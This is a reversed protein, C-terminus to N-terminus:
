VCDAVNESLNSAFLFGSMRGDGLDWAHSGTIAASLLNSCLLNFNLLFCGRKQLPESNHSFTASAATCVEGRPKSSFAEVAASRLTATCVEGRPM